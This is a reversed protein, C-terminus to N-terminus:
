ACQYPRANSHEQKPNLLTRIAIQVDTPLPMYRDDLLGRLERPHFCLLGHRNLIYKATNTSM